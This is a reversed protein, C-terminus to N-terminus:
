WAYIIKRYNLLLIGVLAVSVKVLLVAVASCYVKLNSITIFLFDLKGYFNVREGKCAKKICSIAPVLSSMDEEFSERSLMAEIRLQYYQVNSLLLFFREANGLAARDGSFDRILQIENKTPLYKQLNRM